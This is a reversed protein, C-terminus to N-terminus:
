DNGSGITPSPSQGRKEWYDELHPVLVHGDPKFRYRTMELVAQEPDWGQQDVRWSAVIAGTRHTGRACHVLVPQRDPDSLIALAQDYQEYSGRGDGPMSLRVLEAGAEACIAAEEAMLAEPAEAERTNIVTRIGHEEILRALQFPKPQGSRCLVGEEVVDFNDVFVYHRGEKIGLVVLGLVLVGVVWRWVHAKM